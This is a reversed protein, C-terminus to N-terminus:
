QKAIRHKKMKAYLTTRGIGLIEAAKSKNWNCSELADMIAQKELNMLTNPQTTVPATNGLRPAIDGPSILDDQALVVAQEMINELERVNGPWAYEQLMSFVRPHIGLTKRGQRASFRDIFHRALLIIDSQRHRLAPVHIPIVNLRYFLDERFNGAKAEKELNRNTAAIVRINSKITRESGLRQFCHDQLVRLLKVQTSHPIEGIEDLFVTGGDAQEFRGKKSKLAGTFAGKEYGFLESEILTEPYAACNIVIFPKDARLSKQHLARAVLEKGTGSEGQILITADSPGANNILAYVQQMAPHSGIMGCFSAETSGTRLRRLEEEQGIARLISDMVHSLLLRAMEAEQLRSEHDPPAAFCIANSFQAHARSPIVSYYQARTFSAPLLSQPLPLETILNKPSASQLFQIIPAIVDQSHESRIGQSSLVFLTDCSLTPVVIVADQCSVMECIKHVLFPGFDKLSSLGSVGKIVEFVRSLQSYARELSAAQEELRKKHAQLTAAMTNFSETLIGVEDHGRVAIHVDYNEAAIATTARMLDAIPNFFQRALLFALILSPIFICLAIGGIKLWFLKVRKEIPAFSYGVRLIGSNGKSLPWAMDLYREGTVSSITQVHGSEDSVPTNAAVLQRPISDGFTQALIQNDRTIFIYAIDPVAVKQQDLAKQLAVRDNMLVYDRIQLALSHTQTHARQRLQTRLHAAFYNASLAAMPILALMTVALMGTILKSKLTWHM